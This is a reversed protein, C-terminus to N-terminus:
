LQGLLTTVDEVTLDHENKALISRIADYEPGGAPILSVSGFNEKLQSQNKKIWDLYKVSQSPTLISHIADTHKQVVAAREELNTKLRSLYAAAFAMRRREPKLAIAGQSTYLFRIKEDQEYTLGLDAVLAPWLADKRIMSSTGSKKDSDSSGNVKGNPANAVRGENFFSEDQISLWLLFRCYPPLLLNDLQRFNYDKVAKREISNPGFRNQLLEVGQRLKKQIEVDDCESELQHLLSQILTSRVNELAQDANELHNARTVDISDTLQEVKEELLELYQKKRRRSQRASERNRALRRQRKEDTVRKSSTGGSSISDNNQQMEEGDQEDFSPLSSSRTLGLENSGDPSNLASSTQAVALLDSGQIRGVNNHNGNRVSNSSGDHQLQKEKTLDVSLFYSLLNDDENSLEMINYCTNRNLIIRCYNESLREHPFNHLVGQRCLKLAHIDARIVGIANM